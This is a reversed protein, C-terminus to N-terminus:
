NMLIEGSAKAKSVAEKRLSELIQIRRQQLISKVINEREINIPSHGENINFDLIKILYINLSDSIEFTQNKAFTQKEKEIPIEKLVDDYLLWDDSLYSNVAYKKSINKLKKLDQETRGPSFLLKKAAEIQPSNLPLKFYNIKIIPQRLKFNNKNKEYYQTVEEDSVNKNLLENVRKNEYAYVTLAQRYEEIEKDFKKEKKSLANEAEHLLVKQVIWADIYQQKIVISDGNKAFVPIMNQLNEVTLVYDYVRVVGEEETNQCSFFCFFLFIFFCIIVRKMVLIKCVM